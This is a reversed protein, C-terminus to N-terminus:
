CQLIHQILLGTGHLLILHSLINMSLRLFSHISTTYYYRNPLGGGLSRPYTTMCSPYCYIHMPTKQSPLLLNQWYLEPILNTRIHYTHTLIVPLGLQMLLISTMPLRSPLSNTKVMTETKNSNMDDAYFFHIKGKSNRHVLAVWHSGNIHIPIVITKTNLTPKSKTCEAYRSSKSHLFYKKFANNWGKRFLDRSFHTDM